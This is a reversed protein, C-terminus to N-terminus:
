RRARRSGRGEVVHVGEDGDGGVLVITRPVPSYPAGNTEKTPRSSRRRRGTGGPSTRSPRGPGAACSRRVDCGSGRDRSGRGRSRCRLPCPRAGEGPRAEVVDGDVPVVRQLGGADHTSAPARKRCTTSRSPARWPSAGCVQVVELADRALQADRDLVAAAQARQRGDAVRQAGPGLPHDDAGGRVRSTSKRSSTTPANPSRTSTATSVRPPRTASPPSSGSSASARRPVDDLPQLVTAHLVNM